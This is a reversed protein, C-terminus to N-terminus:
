DDYSSSRMQNYVNLDKLQHYTSVISADICHDEEDTNWHCLCSREIIAFFGFCRSINTTM